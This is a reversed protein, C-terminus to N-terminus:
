YQLNADLYMFEKIKEEDLIKNAVIVNEKVKTYKYKKLLDVYGIKIYEHNNNTYFCIVNEKNKDVFEVDNFNLSHVYRKIKNINIKKRIMSIIDM